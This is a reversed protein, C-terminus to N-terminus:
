RYALVPVGGHCDIRGLMAESCKGEFRGKALSQEQPGAGVRQEKQDAPYEVHWIDLKFSSSGEESM